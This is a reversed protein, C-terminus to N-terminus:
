SEWPNAHPIVEWWSRGASNNGEGKQAKRKRKQKEKGKSEEVTEEDDTLGGDNDDEYDKEVLVEEDQAQTQTLEQLAFARTFWLTGIM